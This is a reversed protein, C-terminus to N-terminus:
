ISDIAIWSINKSDKKVLLRIYAQITVTWNVGYNPGEIPFNTKAFARTLVRYSMFPLNSSDLIMPM